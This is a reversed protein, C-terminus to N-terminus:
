LPEMAPEMHPEGPPVNWSWNFPSGLTGQALLKELESPLPNTCYSHLVSVGAEQGMRVVRELVAEPCGSSSSPRKLNCAVEVISSGRPGAHSYAMAEVGSCM